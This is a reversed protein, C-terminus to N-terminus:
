FVSYRRTGWCKNAFFAIGASVISPYVRENKVVTREIDHISTEICSIHTGTILSVRYCLTRCPFRDHGEVKGTISSACRIVSCPEMKQKHLSTWCQCLGSFLHAEPSEYLFNRVNFSGYSRRRTLRDLCSFAQILKAQEHNYDCLLYRRRSTPTDFAWFRNSCYIGAPIPIVYQWFTATSYIKSASLPIRKFEHHLRQSERWKPSSMAWSKVHNRQLSYALLEHLCWNTFHYIYNTGKRTCHSLLLTLSKTQVLAKVVLTTKGGLADRFSCAM